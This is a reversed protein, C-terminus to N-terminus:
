ISTVYAIKAVRAKSHSLSANRLWAFRFDSKCGKSSRYALTESNSLFSLQAAFYGFIMLMLSCDQKIDSLIYLNKVNKLGRNFCFYFCAPVGM